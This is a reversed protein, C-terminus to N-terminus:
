GGMEQIISQLSGEQMLLNTGRILKAPRGQRYKREFLQVMDLEHLVEILLKFDASTIERRCRQFLSAYGIADGGVSIIETRVKDIGKALYDSEYGGVFLQSGLEKADTIIRIALAIHSKSIVWSDDSIALTAAMRLVHDDERSEFSERYADTNRKRQEYWRTFLKKAGPLLNIKGEDIAERSRRQLYRLRIHLQAIMDNLTRGEEEEEPWAIQRKPHSAHITIIRSTFGGEIVSPNVKTTLWTPTSAALLTCFCQYIKTEGGSITGASIRASPCDYLDTLLGPMGSTSPERGLVRILESVCFHIQCQGYQQSQDHLRIEVGEPTAKTQVHVANPDTMPLGVRSAVDVAFSKRTVGSRASLLVMWNLFVPARPRNVKVRRGMVATLAWAACWFDYEYATENGNMMDMYQAIFSGDPLRRRYNIQKTVVSKHWHTLTIRAM